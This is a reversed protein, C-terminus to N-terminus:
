LTGGRFLTVVATCAAAVCSIGVLLVLRADCQKVGYLTGVLANFALLFFTAASVGEISGASIVKQLQWLQAAAVSGITISFLVAFVNGDLFPKMFANLRRVWMPNVFDM